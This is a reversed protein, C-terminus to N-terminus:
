AGRNPSITRGYSKMKAREVAQSPVQIQTKTGTDTQVPVEGEYPMYIKTAQGASVPQQKMNGDSKDLYDASDAVDTGLAMKKESTAQKVAGAYLGETPASDTKQPAAINLTKPVTSVSAPSGTGANPVAGMRSLGRTVQEDVADLGLKIEDIYKQQGAYYNSAIAKRITDNYARIEKLAAVKQENTLNPDLTSQYKAKVKAISQNLKAKNAKTLQLEGILGSLSGYLFGVSLNQLFQEWSPRSDEPYLFYTSAQDGATFAAGSLGRRLVEMFPTQLQKKTLFRATQTGVLGSLAGGAAGGIAGIGTQLAVNGAQQWASYPQKEYDQGEAAYEAAKRQQAREWQENSQVDDLAQLGREVGFTAGSTVANRVGRGLKQMWKAGKLADGTLGGVMNLTLLDGAVGGVTHAITDADKADAFTDNGAIAKTLNEGYRAIYEPNNESPRTMDQIKRYGWGVGPLNDALGAMAAAATSSKNDLLTRLMQYRELRARDEKSGAFGIRMRDSFNGYLLKSAQQMEKKEVDTPARNLSALEVWRDWNQDIYANDASKREARIQKLFAEEDQYEKTLRVLDSQRKAASYLPDLAPSSEAKSIQNSLEALRRQSMREVTDYNVPTNENAPRKMLDLATAKQERGFLDKIKPVAKYARKRAAVDKSFASRRTPESQASTYSGSRLANYAERSVGAPTYTDDEEARRRNM